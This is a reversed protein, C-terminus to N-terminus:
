LAQSIGSLIKDKNALIENITNSNSANSNPTNNQPPNLLQQAEALLGLAESINKADQIDGQVAQLNIQLYKSAKELVQYNQQLVQYVQNFYQSLSLFTQTSPPQPLPQLGELISFGQIYPTLDIDFGNQQAIQQAQQLYQVAESYNGNEAEQQGKKIDELVQLLATYKVYM